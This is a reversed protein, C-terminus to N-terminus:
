WGSIEVKSLSMHRTFGRIQKLGSCFPVWTMERQKKALNANVKYCYYSTYTINLYLFAFILYADVIFYNFGGIPTLKKSAFSGYIFIVTTIFFGTFCVTTVLFSNKVLNLANKQGESSNNKLAFTQLTKTFKLYAFSYSLSIFLSGVLFMINVVLALDFILSILTITTVIVGSWTILTTLRKESMCFSTDFVNQLSKLVDLWSLVILICACGQFFSGLTIVVFYSNRFKSEITKREVLEVNTPELSLLLSLIEGSLLFIEALIGACTVYFIPNLNTLNSKKDVNHKYYQLCTNSLTIFNFATWTVFLISMIRRFHITPGPEDCNQGVWGYWTSCECFDTENTFINEQYCEKFPTSNGCDAATECM